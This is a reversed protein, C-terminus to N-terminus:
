SRGEPKGDYGLAAHYAEREADSWNNEQQLAAEWRLCFAVLWARQEATLDEDLTHEDASGLCLGQSANWEGFEHALRDIPSIDDSM